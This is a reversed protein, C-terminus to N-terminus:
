KEGIMCTFRLTEVQELKLTIFNLFDIRLAPFGFGGLL